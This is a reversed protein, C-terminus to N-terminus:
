IEIVNAAFFIYDKILGTARVKKGILKNLKEHSFPNDGNLRLVFSEDETDLCIAMHESKSGAGAKKEKVYGELYTVSPAKKNKDVSM